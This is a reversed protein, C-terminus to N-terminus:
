QRFEVQAMGLRVRTKFLKHTGEEGVKMGGSSIARRCHKYPVNCSYVNCLWMIDVKAWQKEWLKNVLLLCYPCLQIINCNALYQLNHVLFFNFLINFFAIQSVFMFSDYTYTHDLDGINLHIIKLGQINFDGHEVTWIMYILIVWTCISHAFRRYEFWRPKFLNHDFWTYKIM